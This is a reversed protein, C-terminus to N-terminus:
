TLSRRMVAFRVDAQLRQLREQPGEIHYKTLLQLDQRDGNRLIANGVIKLRAVSPSQALWRDLLRRWRSPDDQRAEFEKCWQGIYRIHGEPHQQQEIWDLEKLLDTDTPFHHRVRSEIFDRDKSQPELEARLRDLEPRLYRDAWERYGHRVCFEVMDMMTHIDLQKLYPQLTELHALSLRDSLGLTFFGFFMGLHEFADIHPPWKQLAMNALATCRETGLYLAVQVFHKSYRLHDWHKVLLKEADEGPIDRLLNALMYHDNTQGGSFDTPTQERLTLLAQDTVQSFEACWIHAIVHFWHTDSALIAKVYPVATFDGVLARRRLADKFQPHESPIVRLVDLDDTAKVWFAFATKKLWGESAPPEWLARIANLADASLRYGLNRTPDWDNTLTLSWLSVSGEKDARNEAEAALTVLYRVAVPHNVQKLMYAILHRLAKNRTAIDVLYCLVSTSIGRRLAFRLQDAVRERDSRSGNPGEDSLTSWVRIMPDLLSAPSQAGCRVGAWLAAILIDHKNPTSDWALRISNALEDTGIFGALTLAGIREGEQLDARELMQQCGSILAHRHHRLARELIHDLQPANAAPRFNSRDSFAHAGAIADGNALRAHSLSWNPGLSETIEMVFPSDTEELLRYSEYLLTPPTAPDRAAETLWEKATKVITTSTANNEPTLFRIAAILALPSHTRVWSVAHKSAATTAIARGLFTAYFPDSLVSVYENPAELMAGLANALYYELIRDHRFEFQREVSHGTVRCIKGFTVLRRVASARQDTLWGTVDSWRPYLERRQLMSRALALLGEQYDAEIYSGSSAAEAGASRIFREMVEHALADVNGTPSTTFLEGFMAMLIPDYGLTEVLQQLQADLFAGAQKGLAGQLCQVAEHESMRSLPFRSLWRSSQYMPDLPDWFVDWVPIVVFWRSPLTDNEETSPLPRAWPVLKRITTTPEGGRNVNDVVLLLPRQPTALNLAISGAGNQITPYISRLTTEVAEELSSTRAAIEGPIWLGIGGSEIHERLVQYSAVSKGSGSAGSVIHVARGERRISEGLARQTATTVFKLNPPTILFEQSYGQLSKVSLSKLLSLSVLEAQIGLHEKRLWQGEPKMDLCDRIRSQELFVVILGFEKAKKYVERMLKDDLRRNTCLHVVFEADPDDKRFAQAERAAAIIDGDNKATTKTSHSAQTHDFLWKRRLEKREDTTFTAWIFRPPKSGPVLCFTDWRGSITKGQANEGLHALFRCDEDEIRLVRTALIEFKGADTIGEIAEATTL